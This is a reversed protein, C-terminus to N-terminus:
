ENGGGNFGDADMTGSEGNGTTNTNVRVEDKKFVNVNNVKEVHCVFNPHAEYFKFLTSIKKKNMGDVRMLVTENQLSNFFENLYSWSTSITCSEGHIFINDGNKYHIPGGYDTEKWDDDIHHKHENENFFITAGCDNDRKEDDPTPGAVKYPPYTPEDSLAQKEPAHDREILETTHYGLDVGDILKQIQPMVTEYIECIDKTNVGYPYLVQLIQNLKNIFIM